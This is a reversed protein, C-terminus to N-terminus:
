KNKMLHGYKNASSLMVIDTQTKKDYCYASSAVSMMHNKILAQKSEQKHFGKGASQIYLHEKELSDPLCNVSFMNVKYQYVFSM